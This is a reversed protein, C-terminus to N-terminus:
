LRVERFEVKREQILKKIAEQKTSLQSQGSKVEYFIIKDKHFGLYDLPMGLFVLERIDGEFKSSFPALKEISHGHLIYLSRIKSESKKLEQKLEKIKGWFKWIIFGGIGLGIIATMIQTIMKKSRILISPLMGNQEWMSLGM